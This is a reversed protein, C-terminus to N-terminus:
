VFTQFVWDVLPQILTPKIRYRHLL